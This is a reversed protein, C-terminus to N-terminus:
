IPNQPHIFLDREGLLNYTYEFRIVVDYYTVFDLGVGIGMLWDNALRNQQQYLEDSVYGVDTFVNLYLSYHFTDFQDIPIFDVKKVQPKILQYKLNSKFVGYHQGDVIYYEYGRVFDGYGLGQQVYYPPNDLLNIKAKLGWGYYFRGRLKGHQNYGLTAELLNLDGNELLGLGSKKLTGHLLRGHLPYASNDRKDNRYGYILSLFTSSTENNKFYDSALTTITDSVNIQKYEVSWSYRSYLKKRSTYGAGALFEERVFRDDKYFQRENNITAYNIERNRSYSLKFGIGASQKRNIFPITYDLRLKRTWGHQFKLKIKEKRGRFNFRKIDLGYNVRSFDKNRWWTNLNPEALEFKPEPWTYWREDVKVTVMLSQADISDLELKVFNFLGTNRVNNKSALLVGELAEKEITDGAQFSLERLIIREKTVKNGEVRVSKILWREEAALSANSFTTLWAILGVLLFFFDRSFFM